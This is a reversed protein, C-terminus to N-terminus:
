IELKKNALIFFAKISLDVVIAQKTQFIEFKDFPTMFGMVLACLTAIHFGSLGIGWFCDRLLDFLQFVKYLKQKSPKGYDQVPKDGSWMFLDLDSRFNSPLM